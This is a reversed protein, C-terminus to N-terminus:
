AGLQRFLAFWRLKEGGPASATEKWGLKKYLHIADKNDRETELWVETTPKTGFGRIQALVANVMKTAYGKRRFHPDVYLGTIYVVGNIDFPRNTNIKVDEPIGLNVRIRGIFRGGSMALGIWAKPQKSHFHEWSFFHMEVRFWKILDQYYPAGKISSCPVFIFKETSPTVAIGTPADM